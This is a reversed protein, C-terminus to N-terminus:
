NDHSACAMRGDRRGEAKAIMHCMGHGDVAQFMRQVVGLFRPCPLLSIGGDLDAANPKGLRENFRISHRRRM